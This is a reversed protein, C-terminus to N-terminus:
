PGYGNRLMLWVRRYSGHMIISSKPAVAVSLRPAGGEVAMVGTGNPHEYDNARQHVKDQRGFPWRGTRLDAHKRTELRDM